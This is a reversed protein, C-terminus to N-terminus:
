SKWLIKIVNEEVGLSTAFERRLMLIMENFEEPVVASVNETKNGRFKIKDVQITSIKSSQEQLTVQISSEGESTIKVGAESTDSIGVFDVNKVTYGYTKSINNFRDKIEERMTYLYAEEQLNIQFNSTEYMKDINKEYGELLREYEKMSDRRFLQTIPVIFIALMMIGILMKLYKEYSKNPRFHLITQAIIMFVAIRKMFELLSEAMYIGARKDGAFNLMCVKM